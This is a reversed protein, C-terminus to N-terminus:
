ATGGPWFRQEYHVVQVAASPQERVLDRALREAFWVSRHQGGTCGFLVQLSTWGRDMYRAVQALVLAQAHAYFAEAAPDSGLLLAVEESLGTRAALAADRGPNEVARCDFVFGGGHGGPDGPVGRRYSFSGVHVQLGNTPAPPPVFVRLSPHACMRTLAGRLEPYDALFADSGLLAEVERLAPPIREV